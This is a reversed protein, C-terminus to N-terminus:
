GFAPVEPIHRTAKPTAPTGVTIDSVPGQRGLPPHRSWPPSRPPRLPHPPLADSSSCCGCRTARRMRQQGGTARKGDDIGRYSLGPVVGCHHYRPSPGVLQPPRACRFAHSSAGCLRLLPGPLNGQAACCERCPLAQDKRQRPRSHRRDAEGQPPRWHHTAGSSKPTPPGAGSQGADTTDVSVAQSRLRNRM